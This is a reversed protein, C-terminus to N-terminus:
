DGAPGYGPPDQGSVNPPQEPGAGRRGRQHVFYARTVFVLGPLTAFVMLIWTEVPLGAWSM